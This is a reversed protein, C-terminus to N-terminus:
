PDQGFIEDRHVKANLTGQQREAYSGVDVAEADLEKIKSEQKENLDIQKNM